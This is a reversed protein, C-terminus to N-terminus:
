FSLFVPFHVENILLVTLTKETKIKPVNLVVTKKNRVDM